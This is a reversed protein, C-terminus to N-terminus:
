PEEPREELAQVFRRVFRAAPAGDVIDHLERHPLADGPRGGRRGRARAAPSRLMMLQGARRVPWPIRALRSLLKSGEQDRPAAQVRRIEEHLEAWSRRNVARAIHPQPHPVGDREVEVMMLVDVDDFVVLDGRWSRYGQVEPEEAIALGLRHMVWASFSLSEGTLARRERIFRRAETVDAEGLAHLTPRGAGLWGADAVIRREASFPLRRFGHKVGEEM